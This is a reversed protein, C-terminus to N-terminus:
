KLSAIFQAYGSKQYFERLPMKYIDKWSDQGNREVYKQIIRFGMFYCLEDAVRDSFGTLVRDCSYDRGCHRFIPCGDSSDSFLFPSLKEFIEKERDLVNKTETGFLADEASQSLYVSTYYVALGEDLTIGLGHAGDPDNELLPNFVLHEMEHAFLEEITKVNWAEGMIDLVMTQSNCGGFIEFGQPGFYVMWDGAGNQGTISQLSLLHKNFLLNIDVSDLVALKQRIEAGREIMLKSSWDVIGLMTFKERNDDGFIQSLCDDFALKNPKYVKNMVVDPDFTGGEHALIQYKFANRITMEGVSISDRLNRVKEFIADQANITSFTIFCLLITLKPPLM